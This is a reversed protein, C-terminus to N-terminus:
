EIDRYTAAFRHENDHRAFMLDFTADKALVPLRVHDHVREATLRTFVVDMSPGGGVNHVRWGTDRYEFVLIPRIALLDRRRGSLYNVLLATLAVILAALSVGGKLEMGGGVWM